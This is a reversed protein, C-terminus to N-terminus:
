VSRQRRFTSTFYVATALTPHIAIFRPTEGCVLTISISKFIKRGQEDVLNMMKTYHNGGDLLTSICLLCSSQMSHARSWDQIIALTPKNKAFM